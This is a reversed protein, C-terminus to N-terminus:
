EKEAPKEPMTFDKRKELALAVIDDVRAYFWGDLTWLREGFLMRVIHKTHWDAWDIETLDKWAFRERNRAIGEDDATFRTFSRRALVGILFLAFFFCFGACGFQTKLETKSYPTKIMTEYMQEEHKAVKELAAKKDAETQYIKDIRADADKIATMVSNAVKVDNSRAWAEIRTVGDGAEDKLWAKPSPFEGAEKLAYVKEAFKRSERNKNPYGIAGDYVFWGGMAAIVAAVVAMRFRYESNISTTIM